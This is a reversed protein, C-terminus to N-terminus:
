VGQLRRKYLEGFALDLVGRMGNRKAHSYTEAYKCYQSNNLYHFVYRQHSPKTILM